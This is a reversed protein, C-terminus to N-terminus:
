EPAGEFRPLEDLIEVWEAKAGAWVHCLPVLGHGDDMSALTIDIQGQRSDHEYTLPTGCRGCFRRLVGPSSEIAAPEGRTVRFAAAEFTAWPVIGAGSARRCSPCHCYSCFLAPGHLEYAVDGCLCHGSYSADV